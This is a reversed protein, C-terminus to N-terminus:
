IKTGSNYSVFIRIYIVSRVYIYTCGLNTIEHYINFLRISKFPKNIQLQMEQDEVGAFISHLMNCGIEVNLVCGHSVQDNLQQLYQLYLVNQQYHQYQYM